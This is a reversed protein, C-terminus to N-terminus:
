GSAQQAAGVRVTTTTAAGAPCGGGVKGPRGPRVVTVASHGAGPWEMEMARAATRLCV